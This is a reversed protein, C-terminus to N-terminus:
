KWPDGIVKPGYLWSYVLNAIMIIVGIGILYAGISALLNPTAYQVPYTYWRRPMGELGLILMMSFLLYIGVETIVFQINGWKENYRKGTMYPFYFYLGAFIAQTSAGLLMLHLHGVVWYTDHLLYDVPISANFVGTAGAFFFTSIFAISYKMPVKLSIRGGIMTGIWNFVKIGSPVAIAMTMAMFPLRAEISLGSTFMHHAWVGFGFVGIMIGSGAVAGYGFIPKRSLAPIIESILGFAPIIMIYVEPHGFFWFMHQWMLPDGGFKPLFFGTGANRDLLLMVLAASLVPTAGIILFSNVLIMWVFLSMNRFMVGPGRLKYITVVFNVAGLISSTGLVLLGLLWLDVGYGPSYVSLPAYGSWGADPLGAWILAGGIPFLWYSLANLRPFYMDKAGILKPVLYNGFGVLCPIVWLFIMTTGHTTFLSDYVEPTVVANGPEALQTRILLGAVGGLLFFFFSTAIYLIGIDTHHTTSLIGKLSSYFPQKQKEKVLIQM